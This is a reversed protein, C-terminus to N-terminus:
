AIVQLCAEVGYLEYLFLGATVACGYVGIPTLYKHIADSKSLLLLSAAGSAIPLLALLKGRFDDIQQHRDCVAQYAARLDEEHDAPAPLDGQSEPMHGGTPASFRHWWAINM